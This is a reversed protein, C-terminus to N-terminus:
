RRGTFCLMLQREPRTEHESSERLYRRLGALQRQDGRFWGTGDVSEVGAEHCQWLRRYANVRGVHCRECEAAFREVNAWKWETTGGIFAVVGDPCDSPVMGDQMAMALPISTEAIYPAWQDFERKTEKASGPVDPVVVWEPNGPQEKAWSLADLFDLGKWYERQVDRAGAFGSKKWAGFIGNDLAFPLERPDRLGDPSMLLGFRGPWDVEWKHANSNNSPLVRM